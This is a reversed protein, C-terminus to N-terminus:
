EYLVAYEDVPTYRQTYRSSHKVSGYDANHSLSKIIKIRERYIANYRAADSGRQNIISRREFGRLRRSLKLVHRLEGCEDALGSEVLARGGRAAASGILGRLAQEREWLANLLTARDSADLNMKGKRPNRLRCRFISRMRAIYGNDKLGEGFAGLDHAIAAWEKVGQVV